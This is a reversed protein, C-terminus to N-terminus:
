AEGNGGGGGGGVFMRQGAICPSREYMVFGEKRVM